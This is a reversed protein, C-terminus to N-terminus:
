KKSEAARNLAVGQKKFTDLIQEKSFFGMHRYFERGSADFFIQTPIARVGYKQGAGPNERVDIFEVQFVGAYEKRLEELIPAMAKCPICQAAGVDILLPIAKEGSLTKTAKNQAAAPFSFLVATLILVAVSFFTCGGKQSVRM